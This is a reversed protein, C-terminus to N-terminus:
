KIMGELAELLKFRVKYKPSSSETIINYQETSLGVEAFAERGDTAASLCLPPFLVCWWNQGEGNGILVRLSLYEGSPFCLSEYNRTPYEEKGLVVTVGYDFGENEIVSKALAEIKELNEEIIRKAEDQTDASGFLAKSEKLIADRVKLKLNQDSDSDSNALVHLRVVSKYLESEGHIPLIGLLAILLSLVSM